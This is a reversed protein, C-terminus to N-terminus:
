LSLLRLLDDVSACGTPTRWDRGGDAVPLWVLSRPTVPRGAMLGALIRHQGSHIVIGGDRAPGVIIPDVNRDGRSLWLFDRSRIRAVWTRVAVWDVERQTAAPRYGAAEARAIAEAIFEEDTLNVGVSYNHHRAGEAWAIQNEIIETRKM